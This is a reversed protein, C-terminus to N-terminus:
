DGYRSLYALDQNLSPSLIFVGWQTDRSSGGSKQREGCRTYLPVAIVIQGATQRLVYCRSEWRNNRRACRLTEVCLLLDDARVEPSVLGRPPGYCPERTQRVVAAATTVAHMYRLTFSANDTHVLHLRLPSYLYPGM